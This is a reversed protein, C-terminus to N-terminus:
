NDSQEKSYIIKPRKGLNAEMIVRAEDKTFPLTIHELDCAIVVVDGNKMLLYAVCVTVRSGCFDYVGDAMLTAVVTGEENLYDEHTILNRQNEVSQPSSAHGNAVFLLLFVIKMFIKKKM